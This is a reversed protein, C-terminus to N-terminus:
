YTEDISNIYLTNNTQKMKTINESTTDYLIKVEEESLARNYIRVDQIKGNFYGDYDCGIGASYQSYSHVSIGTSNLTGSIEGDIFFKSYEGKKIQFVLHSWTSFTVVGTSEPWMNKDTEENYVMCRMRGDELIAWYHFGGLFEMMPNSGATEEPKVWISITSGDILDIGELINDKELNICNDVGDFEYALQGNYGDTITAGNNTGDNSNISYDNTNGNLPWYGVLGKTISTESFDKTYYIGNDELHCNELYKDNNYLIPNEELGLLEQITPETGDIIDVRPRYWYAREDTKTSYYLYSRITAYLTDQLWVYVNSYTTKRTGNSLYIGKTNQVFSPIEGENYVGYPLVYGVWLSWEEGVNSEMSTSSLNGFYPNTIITSLDEIRNVGNTNGYANLGFYSQGSGTGYNERKLWCSFRYIKTIDISHATSNFGGDANSDIDNELSAWIIDDVGHPNEKLIIANENDNDGTQNRGWGNQSGYTGLVWTSYDWANTTFGVKTSDIENLNLNGKNDLNARTQYLELVEDPSLAKNYIRIDDLKGDTQLQPYSSSSSWSGVRLYSTWFDSQVSSVPTNSLIGNIYIRVDVGNDVVAIHYWTNLQIGILSSTNYATGFPDEIHNRFRVKSDPGALSLFWGKNSYSSLLLRGVNTDTSHSNTNVWISITFDNSNPLSNLSYSYFESLKDTTFNYCGNGIFSNSIWQPSDSLAIEIDNEYGSCDHVTGERTGNVFPTVHDKFEIQLNSVEFSTDTLCGYYSGTLVDARISTLEVPITTTLTGIVLGGSGDLSVTELPQLPVGTSNFGVFRLAVTGIYNNKFAVSFTIKTGESIVINKNQYLYYYSGTDDVNVKLYNDYTVELNGTGNTSLFWNDSGNLIDGNILINETPEQFDDFKYHLIKAKALEKVEKTSLAHDYIRVDDLLGYLSQSSSFGVLVGDQEQGFIFSGDSMDILSSFGLVEGQYDGNKYLKLTGNNNVLTFHIWENVYNATTTITQADGLETYIAVNTSNIHFLFFNANSSKELSFVYRDGIEYINVWFSLSFNILSNMVENPISLYQTTGGDFEYCTGIKGNTITPAGHIVGDYGNGSSDLANGDLKYWAKLSM